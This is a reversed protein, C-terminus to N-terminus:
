QCPQRLDDAIPLTTTPRGGLRSSNPIFFLEQQKIQPFTKTEGYLIVLSLSVEFALYYCKLRHWMNDEIFEKARFEM